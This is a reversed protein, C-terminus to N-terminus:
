FLGKSEFLKGLVNQMADSPAKTGGKKANTSIMDVACEEEFLSLKSVPDLRSKRDRDLALRAEKTEEKSLKGTTTATAINRPASNTAPPGGSTPPKSKAADIPATSTTGTAAPAHQQAMATTTATISSSSANTQTKGTTLSPATLESDFIWETRKKKLCRDIAAPDDGGAKAMAGLTVFSQDFSEQARQRMREEARTQRLAEEAERDEVLKRNVYNLRHFNKHRNINKKHPASM